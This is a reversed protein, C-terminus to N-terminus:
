RLSPAFYLDVYDTLGDCWEFERLRYYTRNQTVEFRWHKDMQCDRERDPAGKIAITGKVIFYDAGIEKIVGDLTLEAGVEGLQAGKIRWIGDVGPAASVKGRTQWTIWQLTIGQLTKLRQVDRRSTIQTSLIPQPEEQDVCDQKDPADIHEPALDASGDGPVILPPAPCAFAAGAFSAFFALLGLRLTVTKM